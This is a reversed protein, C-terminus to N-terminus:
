MVNLLVRTSCISASFPRRIPSRVIRSTVLSTTSFTSYAPCDCLGHAGRAGAEAGLSLDVALVEAQRPVDAKLGAADQDAVVDRDLDLDFQDLNGLLGRGLGLSLSDGLSDSLACCDAGAAAEWLPPQKIGRARSSLVGAGHVSARM